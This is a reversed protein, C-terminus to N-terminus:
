SSGASKTALFTTTKPAIPLTDQNVACTHWIRAETMFNFRVDECVM